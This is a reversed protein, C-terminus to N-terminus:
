GGVMRYVFIKGEEVGERLAVYLRKPRRDFSSPLGWAHVGHLYEIMTLPDACEGSAAIRIGGGQSLGNIKRFMAEDALCIWVGYSAPKNDAKLLTILDRPETYARPGLLISGDGGDGFERFIYERMEINSM